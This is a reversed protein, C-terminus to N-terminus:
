KVEENLAEISKIYYQSMIENEELLNQVFNNNEDLILKGVEDEQLGKVLVQTSELNALAISPTSSFSMERISSLYIKPNDSFIFRLNLQRISASTLFLLQIIYQYGDGDGNPPEPGTGSNKEYGKVSFMSTTYTVPNLLTERDPQFRRSTWIVRYTRGPTIWEKALDEPIPIQDGINLKSRRGLGIEESDYIKVWKSQLPSQTKVFLREGAITINNKYIEEMNYQPIAVSSSVRGDVLAIAINIAQNFSIKAESSNSLFDIEGIAGDAFHFCTKEISDVENNPLQTFFLCDIISFKGCFVFSFNNKLKPKGYFLCNKLIVQSLEKTKIQTFIFNGFDNKQEVDFLVNGSEIQVAGNFVVNCNKAVITLDKFPYRIYFNQSLIVNENEDSVIYIKIINNPTSMAAYLASELSLFPNISSGLQNNKNYDSTDAYNTTISILPWGSEAEASLSPKVYIERIETPYWHQSQFPLSPLNPELHADSVLYFRKDGKGTKELPGLAYYQSIIKGNGNEDFAMQQIEGVLVSDGSFDGIYLYKIFKGTTLDYVAISNPNAYIWYLYIGNIAIAQPTCPRWETEISNNPLSILVQEKMFNKLWNPYQSPNMNLTLIELNAQSGQALEQMKEQLQDLYFFRMNVTQSNIRPTASETALIGVRGATDSALGWANIGVPMVFLTESTISINYKFNESNNTTLSLIMKKFVYKSYYGKGVKYRSFYLPSSRNADAIFTTQLNEISYSDDTFSISHDRIDEKDPNYTESIYLVIENLNNNDLLKSCALSSVHGAYCEIFGQIACGADRVEANASLHADANYLVLYSNKNYHGGNELSGDNYGKARAFGIIYKNLGVYTISQAAYGVKEGLVEPKLGIKENLIKHLQETAEKKFQDYDALETSVNRGGATSFNAGLVELLTQENDYSINEVSAGISLDESYTDDNRKIRVATVKDM